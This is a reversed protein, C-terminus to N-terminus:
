PAGCSTSSLFALTEKAAGDEPNSLGLAISAHVHSDILATKVPVKKAKLATELLESQRVLAPAEHEAILILFPPTTEDLLPITSGARGLREQYTQRNAGREYTIEDALDFGTGDAAVVGCVAPLSAAARVAPDVTVRTVLQAGASHGALFFRKPDAGRAVARRHAFAAATAVDELQAGIGVDPQLRYSVVATAIGRSAYFRGINRYIDRGAVRLARDGSVWSGGHVFVLLPFDRTGASPFYFDLRQKDSGERYAVNKEVQSKPLTSRAYFVNVGVREIVANCGTTALALLCLAASRM